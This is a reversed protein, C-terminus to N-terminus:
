RHRARLLFAGAVVLLSGGILTAAHDASGTLALERPTAAGAIGATTDAALVGGAAAEAARDGAGRVPLVGRASAGADTTVSTTTSSVPAAPTSTTTTTSLSLVLHLTSEPQINYDALIRGDVLEKGAFILRQEHPPIGEKDQVKQKVAEISDSSEVDITITKGTLLKVFIIFM